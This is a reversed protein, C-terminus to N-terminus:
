KNGTETKGQRIDVTKFITTEYIKNMKTTATEPLLTFRTETVRDQSSIFAKTKWFSFLLHLFKPPIPYSHRRNYILVSEKPKERYTESTCRVNIPCRTHTSVMVPTPLTTFM